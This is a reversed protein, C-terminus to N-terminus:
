AASTLGGVRRERGNVRRADGVGSERVNRRTPFRPLPSEHVAPPSPPATLPSSRPLLPRRPSPDRGNEGSRPSLPSALPFPPPPPQAAVIEGERRRRVVSQSAATRSRGHRCRAMGRRCRSAINGDAGRTSPQTKESCPLGACGMPLPVRGRTKEPKESALSRTRQATLQLPHRRGVGRRGRRGHRRRTCRGPAAGLGVEDGLVAVLCQRDGKRGGGTHARHTQAKQSGWAEAIGKAVSIVGSPAPYHHCM